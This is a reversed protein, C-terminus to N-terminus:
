SFWGTKLEIPKNLPIVFYQCKCEQALDSPIIDETTIKEIIHTREDKKKEYWGTVIELREGPQVFFAGGLYGRLAKKSHNSIQIRARFFERAITYYQTTGQFLGGAYTEKKVDKEIKSSLIELDFFPLLNDIWPVNKEAAEKALSKVSQIQKKDLLDQVTEFYHKQLSLVIKRNKAKEQNRIEEEKDKALKEAKERQTKDFEVARAEGLELARALYQKATEMNLEPSKEDSFFLWLNFMARPDNQEAAKLYWYKALNSDQDIGDGRNYCRGVNYQAKPNGAEAMKLWLLFGAYWDPPLCEGVFYLRKAKIAADIEQQFSM